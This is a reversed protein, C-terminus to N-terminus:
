NFIGLQKKAVNKMPMPVFLPKLVVHKSGDTLIVTFKYVRISTDMTLIWNVHADDPAFPKTLGGFLGDKVLKPHNDEFMRMVPTDSVDDIVISAPQAGNAFKVVFTSVLARPKDQGMDWPGFQFTEVTVVGDTPPDSRTNLMVEVEDGDATKVKAAIDPQMVCGSLFLSLATTGIALYPALPSRM